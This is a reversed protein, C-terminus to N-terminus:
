VEQLPYSLVKISPEIVLLLGPLQWRLSTLAQLDPAAALQSRPFLTSQELLHHHALSPSM